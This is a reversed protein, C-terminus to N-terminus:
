EPKSRAPVYDFQYKEAGPEGPEFRDNWRLQYATHAADFKEEAKQLLQQVTLSAGVNNLTAAQRRAATDAAFSWPTTGFCVTACVLASKIAGRLARSRATRHPGNQLSPAMSM